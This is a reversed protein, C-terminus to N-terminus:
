VKCSMFHPHMSIQSVQFGEIPLCRNFTNIAQPVMFSTSFNFQARQEIWNGLGWRNKRWSVSASLLYLYHIIWTPHPFQSYSEFYWFHTQCMCVTGLCSYRLWLPLPGAKLERLLYLARMKQISWKRSPASILQESFCNGLIPPM